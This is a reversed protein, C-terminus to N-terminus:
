PSTTNKMEKNLVLRVPALEAAINSPKVNQIGYVIHAAPVYQKARNIHDSSDDFFIAPDIAILFPTKDLGGLFHTEDIELGWNQLTKFARENAVGNRATVLFTRVRWANEKGLAERVKQLKFAFAHLPGEPLAIHKKEQEFQQFVELGKERYICEAEDSFLVGDGDFVIRVQDKPWQSLDASTTENYNHMKKVMVPRSM